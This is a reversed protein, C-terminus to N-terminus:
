ELEAEQVNHIEPLDYGQYIPRIYGSIVLIEIILCFLFFCFTATLLPKGGFLRYGTANKLRYRGIWVMLVPIIGNLITDGFGGTADLAILFIREYQTAFFLVPIAILLGLALNGWGKKEIRLGDSLFDFLGLGIGLFSTVIAFFAFYEAVACIWGAHIHERLFRTIPEGQNNAAILGFEGDVPVIGLVLAEWIAYILFTLITGGIIAIRLHNTHRKLYPTLSPVMTQFSFSTLLLPITALSGGWTINDLLDPNIEMIGFSILLLYAGIMALFLLSNVKGVVRSGLYLVLSFAALFLLAGLDKSIPLNLYDHFAHMVQAGGGATYAVLSAYGIFLYLIWAAIKGPLGLFKSTMSIVHAGEPMWLSVELLLLASITMAAWCLAMIALAPFFGNLGTAVPLALMGGGICTGAVLFIASIVNGPSSSEQQEM